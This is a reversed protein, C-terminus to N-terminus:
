PKGAAAPDAAIGAGAPTIAAVVSIPTTATGFYVDYTAGAISDSSSFLVSQYESAPSLSFVEKDDRMVTIATGAPQASTASVYISCQRSDPDPAAVSNGVVIVAGGTIVFAGISDIGGDGGALSGFSVVSGGNVHVTGNSDVGDGGATLHVDGGNITIDDHANLADDVATVKVTGSNVIIDDDSSIGENRNGAVILTGGGNIVLTDNTFLAADYEGEGAADSLYNTTGEALTLTVKKADTILLAPGSKSTIDVGEFELYVKGKADVEIHVDALTGSLSDVGAATISVTSGSVTAGEGSVTIPEGLVIRVVGEAYAKQVDASLAGPVTSSSATHGTAAAADNTVAIVVGTM